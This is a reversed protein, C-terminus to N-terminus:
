RICCRCCILILTLSSSVMPANEGVFLLRACRHFVVQLAWLAALDKLSLPDNQSPMGGGENNAIIVAHKPIVPFKNLSVTHSDMLRAVTLVDPVSGLADVPSLTEEKNGTDGGNNNNGAPKNSVAAPDMVTLVFQLLFLVRHTPLRPSAM